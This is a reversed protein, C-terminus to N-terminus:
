NKTPLLQLKGCFFLIRTRYNQFNRFGRDASKISQIRSNFGEAPGNSIRHRFWTLINDLRRKVMKAVKIIPDLRCRSAWGYWRKFFNKAHGAYKYEWFWRFQERIAWARATKLQAEKLPEFELWKEDSLNEPNYLWLQRTGKLSQDGENMLSKHEQRRVKDVAENLYKSIHFRDHVVDAQPVQKAVSNEFAQWMDIAVAEVKGRQEAPLAGWLEDAAAKDRDESVELVRSGDIDTMVSIYNHGKGFSKEDIGVHQVEDVQRHELGREVANDMIRQASGWSLRLLARARETSSAAELVHIAFAEFMLTFRGHPAAWPVAITKVGCEPCDTRPPRATLVTEFQMTDLHRWTRQPAHDKLPRQHGCGPCCVPQGQRHELQIVVRQDELSLDVGSVQWADDLGLLQGYHM